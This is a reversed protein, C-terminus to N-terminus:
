KSMYFDNVKVVYEDAVCICKGKISMKTLDVTIEKDKTVRMMRWGGPSTINLYDVSLANCRTGCLFLGVDSNEEPSVPEYRYGKSIFVYEVESTETKTKSQQAVDQASVPLALLFLCVTTMLWIKTMWGRSIMQDVM